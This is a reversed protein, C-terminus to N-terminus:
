NFSTKIQEAMQWMDFLCFFVIVFFVDAIRQLNKEDNINLSADKANEDSNQQIAANGGDGEGEEDVESNDQNSNNSPAILAVNDESAKPSGSVPSNAMPSGSVNEISIALAQAQKIMEEEEEDEKDAETITTPLPSPVGSIASPDPNNRPGVEEHTGESKRLMEDEKKKRETEQEPTEKANKTMNMILMSVRRQQQIIEQPVTYANAVEKDGTPNTIFNSARRPQENSNSNNNAAVNINNIMSPDGMIKQLLQQQLELQKQLETFAKQQDEASNPMNGINQSPISENWVCSGNEANPNLASNNQQDPIAPNSQLLKDETVKSPPADENKSKCCGM